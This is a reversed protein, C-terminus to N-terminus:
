RSRMELILTAGRPISNISGSNGVGAGASGNVVFNGGQWYDREIIGYGYRSNNGVHETLVDGIAIGDTGGLEDSTGISRETGSFTGGIIAVNNTPWIVLGSWPNDNFYFGYSNTGTGTFSGGEILLGDNANEGDVGYYIGYDGGEFTGGSIVAAHVANLAAHFCVAATSGSIAAKDSIRLANEVTLAQNVYIGYTARTTTGGSTIEGITGGTVNINVSGGWYDYYIGNTTGTVTGGSINISNAAVGVISNAVQLGTPGGKIEASGNLTLYDMGCAYWIGYADGAYSGGSITIKSGRDTAGTYILDDQVSIAAASGSQTLVEIESGTFEIDVYRFISLVDGNRAYFEGGSVTVNARGTTPTGYFAAASNSSITTTTDGVSVIDTSGFTGGSITVTINGGMVYLGYSAGPGVQRVATGKNYGGVFNGGSITVRNGETTSNQTMNRVLIGNGHAATYNGAYVTLTGGSVEVGHGGTRSQNYGWNDNVDEADSLSNGTTTVTPGVKSTQNGLTVTGGSVYVGGGISNTIKGANITVSTSETGQVRVAYSTIQQQLFAYDTGSYDANNEGQHTVDLTGNAILSGGTVYIGNTTQTATSNTGNGTIFDDWSISKITSNVKLRGATQTISGGAIYIGTGRQTNVTLAGSNQTLTGGRVVVGVGNSTITGSDTEFTVRGSTAMIAASYCMNADDQTVTCAFSGTINLQPATGSTYIGASSTGYVNITANEADVRGGAAEIGFNSENTGTRGVTLTSGSISTSGGSAYVGRNNNGEITFTSDTVSTDYENEGTVGEGEEIQSAIGRNNEGPMTFTCSTLAVQGGESLVGTNNTGTSGENFEFSADEATVTGGYAEIGKVHSGTVTFRVSKTDNEQASGDIRLTGADTSQTGAAMYIAAGNNAGEGTAGGAANKTFSGATVDMEGGTIHFIYGLGVSFTGGNVDLDGNQMRITDGMDSAFEGGSILLGGGACGICIGNDVASFKTTAPTGSVTLTGGQTFIGYTYDLGFHNDFTGGRVFGQGADMRISAYPWQLGSDRLSSGNEALEKVDWYGYVVAYIDTGNEAREGTPYYYYFDCSAVNCPVTLPRGEVLLTGPAFSSNEDAIIGEERTYILFTDPTLFKYPTNGSSRYYNKDIRPVYGAVTGNIRHYQSGSRDVTAPKETYSEDRAYLWVSGDSGFGDLSAGQYGEENQNAGDESERPGSEYSGSGVTMTGGSVQLASGVPNYFAGTQEESSDYVLVISVGQGVDLMPNRSNRVVVTGNLDLVLNTSVDQVGTTIVFPSEANDAIQIYSYGNEIAEILEEPTYVVFQEAGVFEISDDYTSDESLKDSEYRGYTSAYLFSTAMLAVILATLFIILLIKQVKKTM